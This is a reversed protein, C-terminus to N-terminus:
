EIESDFLGVQSLFHKLDADFLHFNDLAYM